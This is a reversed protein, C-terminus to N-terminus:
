QNFPEDALDKSAVLQTAMVVWRINMGSESFQEQVVNPRVAGTFTHVAGPFITNSRDHNNSRSRVRMKKEALFLSTFVQLRKALELALFRGSTLPSHIETGPQNRVSVFSLFSPM